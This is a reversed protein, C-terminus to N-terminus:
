NKEVFFCSAGGICSHFDLEFNNKNHNVKETFVAKLMMYFASKNIKGFLIKNVSILKTLIFLMFM